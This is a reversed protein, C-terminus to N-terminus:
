SGESPCMAGQLSVEPVAAVVTQYIRLWTLQWCSILSCFVTHALHFAEPVCAHMSVMVAVKVAEKSTVVEIPAAVSPQRLQLEAGLSPAAHLPQILRIEEAPVDDISYLDDEEATVTREGESESDSEESAATSQEEPEAPLVEDQQLQMVEDEPQTVDRQAEVQKDDEITQLPEQTNTNSQATCTENVDAPAPMIVEQVAAPNIVSSSDELAHYKNFRSEQEKVLAHDTAHDPAHDPAPPTPAAQQPPKSACIGM